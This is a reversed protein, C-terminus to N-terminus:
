AGSWQGLMFLVVVGRISWLATRLWNSSVLRHQLEANYGTSLRGHLPAQWFATSLWLTALAVLGTVTLATSVGGPPELVLWAATLAELPMFIGVVFATRRTHASEYRVFDPEGVAAFLPYHVVQVFWILGVMAWTTAVHVLLVVEVDANPGSRGSAEM